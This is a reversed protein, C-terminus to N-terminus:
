SNPVMGRVRDLLRRAQPVLASRPYTLILRELRDIAEDTRGSSVYVTALQYEASPAMPGQPDSAIAELLVAEATAADGEKSAAEGAVTLVAARGSSGLREAAQRLEAVARSVKDGELGLLAAGLAPHRAVQVRELLVLMAARRTAEARERAYPGAADFHHRATALEGQYLAIWGLVAHAGPTSDSGLLAQGRAFEGRRIWAWAITERIREADRPALQAEWERFRNAAAEVQGADALVRIFTAMAAAAERSSEGRDVSVRDLMRQAGALSGANAFAQAADLRARDAAPGRLLEALRELAFGRARLGESTGTESAADAFRRLLVPAQSEDNPLASALLSWGEGPRDWAALLNAAIWTGPPGAETTLFRLVPARREEPIRRLGTSASATLEPSAAVARAWQRAADDWDAAQVALQAGYQTLRIDGIREGGRAIVARAEELRGRSALWQAWARYPNTSTPISAMWQAAVVAVSDDGDLAAVTRFHLERVAESTPISRVARTLYRRLSDLHGLRLLVRELGLLASVDAPDVDLARRYAGSAEALRGDRELQLPSQALALEPLVVLSLVLLASRVRRM